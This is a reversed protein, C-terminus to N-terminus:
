ERMKQDNWVVDAPFPVPASSSLLICTSERLFPLFSLCLFVCWFCFHVRVLLVFLVSTLVQLCKPLVPCQIFSQQLGPSPAYSLDLSLLFLSQPDACTSVCGSDAKTCLTRLIGLVHSWMSFLPFNVCHPAAVETQSSSCAPRPERCFAHKMTPVFVDEPLEETAAPCLPLLIDDQLVLGAFEVVLTVSM